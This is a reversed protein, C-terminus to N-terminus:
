PFCAPMPEATTLVPRDDRVAVFSAESVVDLRYGSAALAHKVNDASRPLWVYEPRQAALYALGEPTGRAVADQEDLTRQSYVTERRGDMSVRLRPGWHWIAYQGWDFPLVLRGAASEPEFARAARLDPAWSGAIGLCSLTAAATVIWVAAVGAADVVWLPAARLPTADEASPLPDGSWRDRWVATSAIAFLPGLRDVFMAAGCLGAAPLLASWAIRGRGRVISAVLAGTVVSWLVAHSPGDQQWLPRWETIDRTMRVTGALFQWLGVGYPNAITAVVAAVCVLAPGRLGRLPAGDMARGAIWAGAVGAGVIWGGHLNAWLAFLPILLLPTGNVYLLRVLVALAAITWLQPRFTTAAPVLAFPLLAFFAWRLTQPRVPALVTWLACLAGAVIISKLVILGGVGGANYAAAFIAESLWEHNIWPTDQTFSYPDVATLARTRLIDFGYTLHGWLDPDASARACLFAAGLLGALRPVPALGRGAAESM